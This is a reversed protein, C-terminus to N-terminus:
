SRLHRSTQAGALSATTSAGTGMLGALVNMKVEFSYKVQSGVQSEFHVKEVVVPCTLDQESGPNAPTGGAASLAQALQELDFPKPLRVVVNAVQSLLKAEQADTQSTILVFATTSLPGEARIKQALQVGTMDALHMASVVVRPPATRAIELAKQGSPATAVEQFGLKQLYGRIIVAQSRSPEM